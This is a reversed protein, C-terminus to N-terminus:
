VYIFFNLYIYIFDYVVMLHIYSLYILCNFWYLEYPFRILQYLFSIFILVIFSSLFLYFHKLGSIWLTLLTYSIDDTTYVVRLIILLKFFFIFFYFLIFLNFFLMSAALLPDNKYWFNLITKHYSFHDRTELGWNWKLPGQTIKYNEIWGIKSYDTIDTFFGFLCYLSIFYLIYSLLILIGILGYILQGANVWRLQYKLIYSYYLIISFILILKYFFVTNYWNWWVVLYSISYTIEYYFPMTVFVTTIIWNCFFWWQLLWYTKYLGIWVIKDRNTFSGYRSTFLVEAAWTFLFIFIIWTQFLSWEIPEWLPEDDILLCDIIFILILSRIYVWSELKYIKQFIM